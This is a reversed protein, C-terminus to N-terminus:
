SSCKLIKWLSLFLMFKSLVNFHFLGFVSKAMNKLYFLSESELTFDSGFPLGSGKKRKVIIYETIHWSQPCPSLYTWRVTWAHTKCETITTLSASVWEGSCFADVLENEHQYLWNELVKNSYTALIFAIKLVHGM